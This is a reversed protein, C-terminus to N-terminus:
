DLPLPISAGWIEPIGATDSGRWLAARRAIEHQIALYDEVSDEEVRWRAPSGLKAGHLEGSTLLDIIDDVSLSLM